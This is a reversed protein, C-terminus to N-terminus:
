KKLVAEIQAKLLFKDSNLQSNKLIKKRRCEKKLAITQNSEKHSPVMAYQDFQRRVEAQQRALLDKEELRHLTLEVQKRVLDLADEIMLVRIVETQSCLRRTPLTLNNYWNKIEAQYEDFKVRDNIQNFGILYQDLQKRVEAQQRALLQKELRRETLIEQRNLHNCDGGIIGLNKPIKQNIWEEVMMSHTRLDDTDNVQDFGNLLQDLEKRADAQRQRFRLQGLSLGKLISNVEFEFSDENHARTRDFKRSGDVLGSIPFLPVVISCRMGDLTGLIQTRTSAHEDMSMEELKESLKNIGDNETPELQKPDETQPQMNQDVTLGEFKQSLMDTVINQTPEM